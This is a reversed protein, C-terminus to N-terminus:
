PSNTRLIHQAFPEAQLPRDPSLHGNEQQKHNLPALKFLRAVGGGVFGSAPPKM